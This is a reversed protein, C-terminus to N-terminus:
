PCRSLHGAARARYNFQQEMYIYPFPANPQALIYEPYLAHTNWAYKQKHRFLSIIDYTLICGHPVFNCTINSCGYASIQSVVTYACAFCKAMGQLQM